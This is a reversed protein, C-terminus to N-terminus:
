QPQPPISHQQDPKNSQDFYITKSGDSQEQQEPQEQEKPIPVVEDAFIKKFIECTPLRGETEFNRVVQQDNRTNLIAFVYNEVYGDCEELVEKFIEAVYKPPNRWAGCGLAGLVITRHGYKNAIQIILKIKTKLMQTDRENLIKENETGDENHRYILDPYKVGPCAIFALEPWFGDPIIKWGSKETTKVVKVEPSYIAEDKRIPYLKQVLTLYYNTRRFLSEEQAGSGSEICGGAFNDDALNLVLPNENICHLIACKIADMNMFKITSKESQKVWQYNEDYQLKVSQNNPYLRKEECIRRTDNWCEIRDMFVKSM